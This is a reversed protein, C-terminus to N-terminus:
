KKSAKFLSGVRWDLGDGYAAATKHLAASIDIGAGYIGCGQCECLYKHNKLKYINLQKEGCQPCQDVSKLFQMKEKQDVEAAKRRSKEILAFAEANMNRIDNELKEKALEEASPPQPAEEPFDEFYDSWEGM